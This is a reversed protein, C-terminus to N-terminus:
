GGSFMVDSDQNHFVILDIELQHQDRQLFSLQQSQLTSSNAIQRNFGDM